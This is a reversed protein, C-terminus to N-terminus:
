KHLKAAQEKFFLTYREASAKDLHGGDTTTYESCNPIPIYSYKIAPFEKYFIERIAKVRPMDCLSVHIPMEFFVVEVNNRELIDTYKKLMEMDQGLSAPVVSEEKILIPLIKAVMDTKDVLSDTQIPSSVKNLGSQLLYVGYGVVKQGYPIAIYGMPQKGDRLSPIYKRLFSMLPNSLSSRFEDSAKRDLKNMEIYIRKPYAKEHTIVELGDFVGLGGLSLNYYGPLYGMEIRDALSSGIIINEISDTNSYIYNQAKIQNDQWQHESVYKNPDSVFVVVLTYGLLLIFCLLITKKIM